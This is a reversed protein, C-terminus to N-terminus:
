QILTSKIFIIIFSLFLGMLFAIALLIEVSKSIEIAPSAKDLIINYDLKIKKIEDLQDNLNALRKQHLIVTDVGFSEPKTSLILVNPKTVNTIELNQKALKIENTIIQSLQKFLNTEMQQAVFIIYSNLFEEGSLPKEFTLSFTKPVNKLKESEFKFNVLFYERLNIKKKKLFYKFYDIQNNKEAFDVLNDISMINYNIQRNLQESISDLLKQDSLFIYTYKNLSLTDIEKIKIETKYIKPQMLSYAYGMVMFVFCISLILIKEKWLKRFIDGLYIEDDQIFKNIRKM